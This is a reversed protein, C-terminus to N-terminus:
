EAKPKEKMHLDLIVALPITDNPSNFVALLPKVTKKAEPLFHFTKRLKTQSYVFQALLFFAFSSYFCLGKIRFSIRKRYM